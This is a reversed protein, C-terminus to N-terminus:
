AGSKVLRPASLHGLLDQKCASNEHGERRNAGESLGAADSGTCGGAGHAAGDNATRDACGDAAHRARNHATEGILLLRLEALIHHGLANRGVAVLFLDADTRGERGGAHLVILDRLLIADGVVAVRNHIVSRNQDLGAGAADDLDDALRWLPQLILAASLGGKEQNEPPASALM